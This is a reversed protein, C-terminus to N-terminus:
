TKHRLMSFENILCYCYPNLSMERVHGIIPAKPLLSLLTFMNIYRHMAPYGAAAHQGWGAQMANADNMTGVQIDSMSYMTDATAQYPYQNPGPPAVPRPVQRPHGYSGGPPGMPPRGDGGAGYGQAYVSQQTNPDMHSFTTSSSGFTALKQLPTEQSYTPQSYATPANRDGTVAPDLHVSGLEPLNELM